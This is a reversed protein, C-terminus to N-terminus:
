FQNIFALDPWVEWVPEPLPKVVTVKTKTCKSRHIPPLGNVKAWTKGDWINFISKRTVGYRMCLNNIIEGRRERPISFINMADQATLKNGKSSPDM